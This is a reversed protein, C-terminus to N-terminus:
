DCDGGLGAELRTLINRIREEVTELKTRLSRNEDVLRERENEWDEMARFKELQEGLERKLSECEERLAANRERLTRLEDVFSRLREELLGLNRLGEDVVEQSKTGEDYNL